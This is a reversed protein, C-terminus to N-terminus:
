GGLCLELHALHHEGHWAYQAALQDLRLTADQGPHYGTRNWQAESCTALTMAWRLHMGRLMELSAAVPVATVDPLEAWRVEDYPRLTPHDETLIHKARQYAHIHSDALHHILQRATWGDPRYAVDLRDADRLQRAIAVVKAPLEGISRVYELRRTAAVEPSPTELRGIPFRLHEM